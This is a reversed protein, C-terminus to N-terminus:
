ADIQLKGQTQLIFNYTQEYYPEDKYYETFYSDFDSVFERMGKDHFNKFRPLLFEFLVKKKDDQILQESLGRDKFYSVIDLYSKIFVDGFNYEFPENGAYSFSVDNIICFKSNNELISYQMYIHNFSSGIYKTPEALKEFEKRPIIISSIFSSYISTERLFQDMGEFINIEKDDNFVNIFYLGCDKQNMIAQLIKNLIGPNFFDDDGHLIMYKGKSREMTLVINREAGINESNKNYTINGYKNQYKMVVEETHDPSDNNSIFVEYLSHHGIQNFISELCRDLDNARNYTPICISILPHEKRNLLVEEIEENGRVRVWSLSTTDFMKIIQAPNGAVVSFDPVDKNVFSNAAIVCGKGIRVNGVIVSNIGIWTGEGVIVENTTSTVGQFMIPLAINEYAHGCDSIYVNPGIIVNKEIVARNSVSVTFHKGIECGDDIVIQPEGYFNNVAINLWADPRITVHDGISIVEPRVIEAGLQIISSAGFNFFSSAQLGLNEKNVVPPASTHETNRSDRQPQEVPVQTTKRKKRCVAVVYLPQADKVESLSVLEYKKAQYQQVPVFQTDLYRAERMVQTYYLDHDSTFTQGYLELVDYEKTLEGVFETVTYEYKHHTNLPQEVFYLGPNTITRNPTSVLFIGDEKLVRASEKIWNAGNEIHEVTEFSVVIDFSENEFKLSNVDGYAFDVNNSGYTKKASQLSEESIDVGFVLRAGAQQLMKSGYGAGCAADLVDKGKVFRCALKYRELHEELIDNYKEKVEQNIVLREGTFQVDNQEISLIDGSDLNENYGLKHLWELVDESKDEIQSAYQIALELEGFQALIISLNLLSEKHRSDYELSKQLLPIPMDYYENEFGLVALTNCVKNKNNISADDIIEIVEEFLQQNSSLRTLVEQANEIANVDNDVNLLLRSLSQEGIGVEM